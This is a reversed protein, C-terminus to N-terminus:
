LTTKGLGRASMADLSSALDSQRVMEQLDRVDDTSLPGNVIRLLISETAFVAPRERPSLRGRTTALRELMEDYEAIERIQEVDAFSSQDALLLMELLLSAADLAEADERALASEIQQREEGTSEPAREALLDSLSTEGNYISSRLYSAPRISPPAEPGIAVPPQERSVLRGEQTLWASVALVLCAAAALWGLWNVWAGASRRRDEGATRGLVDNMFGNPLHDRGYLQTTDAAILQNVAEVEGVLDRCAACGALHREAAHRTGPDLEDDVLGSLVVKIDTCDM